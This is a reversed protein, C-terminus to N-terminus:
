LISHMNFSNDELLQHLLTKVTGSYEHFIESNKTKSYVSLSNIAREIEDLHDHHAFVSLYDEQKGWYDKLKKAASEPNEDNKYEEICNELLHNSENIVNKIYINGSFHIVAIIVAIIGSAILRKM